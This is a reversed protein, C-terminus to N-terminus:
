MMEMHWQQHKATDVTVPSLDYSSLAPLEPFLSRNLTLLTCCHKTYTSEGTCAQAM